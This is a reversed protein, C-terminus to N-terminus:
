KLKVRMMSWSAKSLSVSIGEGLQSSSHKEIPVVPQEDPCNTQKLDYGEIALHQVIGEIDFGELSIETSIDTDLSRNVMFLVLERSQENYVAASDIMSIEGSM